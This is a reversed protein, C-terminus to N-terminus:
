AADAIYVPAILIASCPGIGTSNLVTNEWPANAAPIKSGTRSKSADVGSLNTWDLSLAVPSGMHDTSTISASGSARALVTLTLTM